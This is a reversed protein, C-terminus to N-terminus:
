PIGKDPMDDDLHQLQFTAAADDGFQIFQISFRRDKLSDTRTQLKTIFAVIKETVEDKDRLGNWIGDTFIILTLEKVKKEKGRKFFFGKEKQGKQENIEALYQDFINALAMAMDTKVGKSPQASPNEMAKTFDDVKDSNKVTIPGSTFMLDMGDTDIHHAKMVLTELLYQAEFWFPDMTEGNDVLFKQYTILLAVFAKCIWVYM